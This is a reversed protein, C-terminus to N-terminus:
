GSLYSIAGALVYIHVTLYQKKKQELGVKCIMLIYAQFLKVGLRLEILFIGTSSGHKYTNNHINIEQKVHFFALSLNNKKHTFM